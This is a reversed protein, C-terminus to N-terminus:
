KLWFGVLTGLAGYAWHRDQISYPKALIVYLAAILLVSTIVIPVVPGYAMWRVIEGGDHLRTTYFSVLRAAIDATKAIVLAVVAIVFLALGSVGFRMTSEEVKRGAFGGRM